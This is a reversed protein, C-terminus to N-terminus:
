GPMAAARCATKGGHRPLATLEVELLVGLGLHWAQLHTRIDGIVDAGDEGRQIQGGGLYSKHKGCCVVVAHAGAVDNLSRTFWSSLRRV